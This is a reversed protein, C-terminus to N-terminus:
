RPAAEIWDVQVSSWGDERGEIRIRNAGPALTVPVDITKWENATPQM